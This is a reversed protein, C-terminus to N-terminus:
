STGMGTQATAATPPLAATRAGERVLKLENDRDGDASISSDTSSARLAELEATAAHAVNATAAAPVEARAATLEAMVLRAATAATETAAQEREEAPAAHDLRGLTSVIRRVHCALPPQQM